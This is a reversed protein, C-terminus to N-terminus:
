NVILSSVCVCMHIYIYVPSAKNTAIAHLSLNVWFDPTKALPTGHSCGLVAIRRCLVHAWAHALLSSSALVLSGARARSGGLLGARCGSGVEADRHCRTLM